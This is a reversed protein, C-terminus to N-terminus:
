AGVVCQLIGCPWLSSGSALGSLGLINTEGPMSYAALGIIQATGFFDLWPSVVMETAEDVVDEM